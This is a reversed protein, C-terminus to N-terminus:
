NEVVNERSIKGYKEGPVLNFQAENLFQQNSVFGKCLENNPVEPLPPMVFFKKDFIFNYNLFIIRTDRFSELEMSFQVYSKGDSSQPRNM